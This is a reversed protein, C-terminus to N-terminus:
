SKEDCLFKGRERLADNLARWSHWKGRGMRSRKRLDDCITEYVHFTSCQQRRSRVVRSSDFYGQRTRRMINKEHTFRGCTNTRRERVWNTRWQTWIVVVCWFNDHRSHLCGGGGRLQVLVLACEIWKNLTAFCPLRALSLAFFRPFKQQQRDFPEKNSTYCSCLSSLLLSSTWACPQHSKEWQPLSSLNFIAALTSRLM